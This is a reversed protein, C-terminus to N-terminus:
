DGEKSDNIIATNEEIPDSSIIADSEETSCNTDDSNTISDDITESLSEQVSASEEVSDVEETPSSVDGEVETDSEVISTDASVEENPTSEINVSVDEQTIDETLDDTTPIGGISVNEEPLTDEIDADETPIEEEPIPEEPSTDETVIDETSINEEPIPEETIIEDELIIDEEPILEEIITGDELITDEESANETNTDEVNGKTNSDTNIEIESDKIIFVPLEPEIDRPPLTLAPPRGTYEMPPITAEFVPEPTPEIYEYKLIVEFVNDMCLEYSFCGRQITGSCIKSEGAQVTSGIIGDTWDVYLIKSNVPLNKIDLPEESLSWEHIPNTLIDTITVEYDMLNTYVIEFPVTYEDNNAVVVEVGLDASVPCAALMFLMVMIISVFRKFM